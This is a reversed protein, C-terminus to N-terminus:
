KRKGKSTALVYQALDFAAKYPVVHVRQRQAEIIQKATALAAKKTLPKM